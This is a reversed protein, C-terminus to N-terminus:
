QPDNLDTIIRSTVTLKHYGSYSALFEWTASADDADARSTITKPM